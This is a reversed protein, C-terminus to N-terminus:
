EPEVRQTLLQEFGCAQMAIAFGLFRFQAQPVYQAFFGGIGRRRAHQARNCKFLLAVTKRSSQQTIGHFQSRIIETCPNVQRPRKCFEFFGVFRSRRDFHQDLEFAFQRMGIHQQAVQFGLKAVVIGRNRREFFREVFLRVVAARKGTEAM